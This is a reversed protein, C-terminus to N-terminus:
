CGPASSRLTSAPVNLRPWRSPSASGATRCCSRARPCRRSCRSTREFDAEKGGDKRNRIIFSDPDLLELVREIEEEEGVDLVVDLGLEVALDYLEALASDDELAAALLVVGGAGCVRAEYVQYPDIM